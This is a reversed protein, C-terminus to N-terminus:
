TERVSSSPHRCHLLPYADASLYPSALMRLAGLKRSGRLKSNGERQMSLSSAARDVRAGQLVRWRWWSFYSNRCDISETSRWKWSSKIEQDILKYSANAWHFRGHFAVPEVFYTSSRHRETSSFSEVPPLRETFQAPHSIQPLQHHTAQHYSLSLLYCLQKRRRRWPGCPTDIPVQRVQIWAQATAEHHLKGVQTATWIWLKGLLDVLRECGLLFVQRWM